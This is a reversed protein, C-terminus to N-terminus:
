DGTRLEELAQSASLPGSSPLPPGLDLLNLRAPIVRGERRLRALTTEPAPSLLAVPRGQDVVELTEGEAVRDLYRRLNDNLEQVTVATM